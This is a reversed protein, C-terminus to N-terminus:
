ATLSSSASRSHARRPGNSSGSISSRPPADSVSRRSAHSWQRSTPPRSPWPSSTAGPSFTFAAGMLCSSRRRCVGSTGSSHASGCCGKPSSPLTWVIHHTSALDLILPIMFGYHREEGMHVAYRPLPQRASLLTRTTRRRIPPPVIAAVLRRTVTILLQVDRFIYLTMLIITLVGILELIRMTM